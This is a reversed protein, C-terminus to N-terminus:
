FGKQHINSDVAISLLEVHPLEISDQGISTKPKTKTAKATEFVRKILHPKIAISLGLRILNLPNALVFRKILGDTSLSASIFGILQNNEKATYVVEKNILFRYMNSLFSNGLEALFSNNLASHHISALDEADAKAAISIM